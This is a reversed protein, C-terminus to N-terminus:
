AGVKNKLLGILIKKLIPNSFPSRINRFRSIIEESNESNLIDTLTIKNKTIYDKLDKDSLKTLDDNNLKTTNDVTEVNNENNNENVTPDYPIPMEKKTEKNDDFAEPYEKKNKLDELKRKLDVTIPKTLTQTALSSILSEDASDYFPKVDIYPDLEPPCTSWGFIGIRHSKCPKQKDLINKYSTKDIFSDILDKMKEYTLSKLGGKEYLATIGKGMIWDLMELSPIANLKEVLIDFVQGCIRAMEDDSIKGNGFDDVLINGTNKYKNLGWLQMFRGFTKAVNEKNIKKYLAIANAHKLQESAKKIQKHIYYSRATSYVAIAKYVLGVWGTLSIALIGLLPKILKTLGHDIARNIEDGIQKWAKKIANLLSKFPNHIKWGLNNDSKLFNYNEKVEIVNKM